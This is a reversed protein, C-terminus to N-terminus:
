IPMGHAVLCTDKTESGAYATFMPRDTLENLGLQHRVISLIAQDHRHGLCRPDDSCWGPNRGQNGNSHPGAVTAENSRMNWNWVLAPIRPRRLVGVCYSSVDEIEMAEDRTMGFAALCADSCWDGVKYGNRCLYYGTKLIHQILPYLTNVAYFNADLLIAVDSNRAAHLLAAPKAVYGTYDFGGVILPEVGPPLTNVWAQVEIDPEMDRLSNILRSVPRM